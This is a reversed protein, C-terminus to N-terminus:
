RSRAAWAEAGSSRASRSSAPRLASCTRWQSWSCCRVRSSRVWCSAAAAMARVWCGGPTHGRALPRDDNPVLSPPRIVPRQGRSIHAQHRAARGPRSPPQGRSPTRPRRPLSRSSGHVPALVHVAPHHILLLGLLPAGTREPLLCAVLGAVRLHRRRDAVLPGRGEADGRPGATSRHLGTTRVARLDLGAVSAERGRVKVPATRSRREM